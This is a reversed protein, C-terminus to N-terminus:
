LRLLPLGLLAQAFVALTLVAYGCALVRLVRVPNGGPRRDLWLGLLPFIQLAHLSLFHAPRLDGVEGSWGLLPFSPADASPTGVYHGTSNSMYGAVILTLAFSVVVGLVIGSRLGPSMASDRHVVRAVLLPMAILLVAGVGMMQYMIIHFSSSLNFHSHEAQAAQFIIYGMEGLGAAALITAAITLSRWTRLEPSLSRVILALTAFHVVLSLSFKLPKLWVPIGDILRPDFVAWILLILFLAIMTSTLVAFPEAQQGTTVRLTTM